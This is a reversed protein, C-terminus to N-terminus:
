KTRRHARETKAKEIALYLKQYVQVEQLNIWPPLPEQYDEGDLEASYRTKQIRSTSGGEGYGKCYASYPNTNNSRNLLYELPVIRFELYRDPQWHQRWSQFSRNDPLWGTEILMRQINEPVRLHDEFSSWEGRLNLLILEALLGAQRDKENKIQEIPISGNKTLRNELFELSMYTTLDIGNILSQVVLVKLLIAVQKSTLNSVRSQITMQFEMQISELGRERAWSKIHLTPPATERQESSIEQDRGTGNPSSKHVEEKRPKGFLNLNIM